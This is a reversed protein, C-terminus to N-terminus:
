LRIAGCSQRIVLQTPLLIQQPGQIQGEILDILLNTAATGKHQVPQRVTTL